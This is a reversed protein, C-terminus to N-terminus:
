GFPLPPGSRLGRAISAYQGFEPVAERHLAIDADTKLHLEQTYDEGSQKDSVTHLGTGDPKYDDMELRVCQSQTLYEASDGYDYTTIGALFLEEDHPSFTYTVAIRGYEDFFYVRVHGSRLALEVTRDAHESSDDVSAVSYPQGTAHLDAAEDPTLPKIPKGLRKNWRQCYVLSM